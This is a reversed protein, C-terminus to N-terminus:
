KRVLELTLQLRDGRLISVVFEIPRNEIDFTTREVDFAASRPPVNLLDALQRSLIIPRYVEYARALRVGFREELVRYLSSDERLQAELNRFRAHSLFATQLAMPEGDGLRLRKIRIVKEGDGLGLPERVRESPEEVQVELLRSTAVLGRQAMEETFSVLESVV